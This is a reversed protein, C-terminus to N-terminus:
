KCVECESECKDDDTCSDGSKGDTNCTCAGNLCSHSSECTESSSGGGGNGGGGDGGCAATLSSIGVLFVLTAFAKM